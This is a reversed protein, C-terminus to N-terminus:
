RVGGCIRVEMNQFIHDNMAVGVPRNRLVCVRGKAGRVAVIGPLMDEDDSLVLVPCDFDRVITILDAVILTDVMKQGGDRYLGRYSPLSCEFNGVAIEPLVRIGHFRRRIEATAAEIWVGSATRGSNRDRWGGYLRLSIDTAEPYYSRVAEGARNAIRFLNDQVDLAAREKQNPRVNDYDVLAFVQV